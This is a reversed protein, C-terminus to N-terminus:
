EDEVEELPAIKNLISEKEDLIEDLIKNTLIQKVYVDGLLTGAESFTTTETPELEIYVKNRLHTELMINTNATHTWIGHQGGNVTTGITYTIPTYRYALPSELNEKVYKFFILKIGIKSGISSLIKLIKGNTVNQSSNFKPSLCSKNIQELAVNFDVAGTEPLDFLMEGYMGGLHESLEKYTNIKLNNCAIALKMLEQKSISYGRNIYKEVRVLSMFPFSTGANFVLKRQALDKFFDPHFFFEEKDFCYAAMNITFDFSKFIEEHTEYANVTILQLGKACSISKDTIHVASVEHSDMEVMGFGFGFMESVFRYMYGYNRFYIDFDNIEQRSFISTLAGGALICKHAKLLTYTYGLKDKLIKKEIEFM